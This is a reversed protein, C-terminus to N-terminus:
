LKCDGLDGNAISFAYPGGGKLEVNRVLCARGSKGTLKVDYRGPTVDTLTLREDASVSKDADNLCQNKGWQETGAPALMLEVITVDTLNWFRLKEAAQAPLVLSAVLLPALYTIRM